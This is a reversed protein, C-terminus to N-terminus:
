TAEVTPVRKMKAAFAVLEPPSDEAADLLQREAEEDGEDALENLIALAEAHAGAGRAFNGADYSYRAHRLLLDAL